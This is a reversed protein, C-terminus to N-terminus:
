SFTMGFYYVSAERLAQVVAEVSLEGWLLKDAAHHSRHAAAAHPPLPLLTHQNNRSSLLGSVSTVSVGPFIEQPLLKNALQCLIM